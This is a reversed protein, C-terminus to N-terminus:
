PWIRSLRFNHWINDLCWLTWCYWATSYKSAHNHIYSTPPNTVRWTKQHRIFSRSLRKTYKWRIPSKCYIWLYIMINGPHKNWKIMEESSYVKGPRLPIWGSLAALTISVWTPSDTCWGWEPLHPLVHLYLHWTWHVFKM